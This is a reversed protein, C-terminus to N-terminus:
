SAYCRRLWRATGPPAPDFAKRRHLVRYNDFILFQGPRLVPAFAPTRSLHESLAALAQDAAATMGRTTGRDYRILVGEPGHQIVSTGELALRDGDATVDNSDPAKVLFEPASLRDLVEDPLGRLATDVGVFETAVQEANRVAYFTLFRPPFPRPNLGEGGFPLHPNDTHWFFETDSGWSSTTGAAEPNPVVNRILKGSNEYDVAYPTLGLLAILGLQLSTVLCLDSEEGFGNVPTPPFEQQPLNSLVLVDSRAGAFGALTDLVSAPLTRRLAHAGIRALIAADTDTDLKPFPDGLAEQLRAGLADRVRDALRLDTLAIGHGDVDSSATLTESLADM